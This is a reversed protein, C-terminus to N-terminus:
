RVLLVPCSLEDLLAEIARQELISKGAHLVLARASEDRAAELLDAIQPRILTKFGVRQHGLRERARASLEDASKHTGVVILVRLACRNAQALRAGVELARMSAALRDFVVTVPGAPKTAEGARGRGQIQGTVGEAFGRIDSRGMFSRQAAGLAMLDAEMAAKLLESPMHGRAVRFSWAVGERKAITELARRAATAQARLEHEIDAARLDREARRSWSFERAFPLEALRLLNTVEIFLGTIEAEMTAAIEAAAELVPTQGKEAGLAVVIRRIRRETFARTM